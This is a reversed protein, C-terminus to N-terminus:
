AKKISRVFLGEPRFLLVLLFVAYGIADAWGGSIFFAAWSELLGLIIGGLLAGSVSGLGGLALAIMAKLSFVFGFYPDFPYTTSVAIGAIGSLGIGIAFAITNVWHPSVGVLRAAELDESAARVAKGVFTKKLFLTVAGTALMAMAFGLLRTFSIDLTGISISSSTYSTSISRPDPTWAVAMFNELLFMLGVAILLSINKDEM